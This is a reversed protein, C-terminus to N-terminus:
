IEERKQNKPWQQKCSDASRWEDEKVPSRRRRPLCQSNRKRWRNWCFFFASSATVSVSREVKKTMEAGTEDREQMRTAADKHPRDSVSNDRGASRAPSPSCQKPIIANCRHLHLM